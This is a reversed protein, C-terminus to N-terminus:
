VNSVLLFIMPRNLYISNFPSSILRALQFKGENELGGAKPSDEGTNLTGNQQTIFIAREDEDSTSGNYYVEELDPLLQLFFNRRM